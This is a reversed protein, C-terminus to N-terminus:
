LFVTFTNSFPLSTSRSISNKPQSRRSATSSIRRSNPNYGDPESDSIRVGSETPRKKADAVSIRINAAQQRVTRRIANQTAYEYEFLKNVTSESSSTHRFRGEKTISDNYVTVSFDRCM